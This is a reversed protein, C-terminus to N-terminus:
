RPHGGPLRGRDPARTGAQAQAIDDRALGGFRARGAGVFERRDAPGQRRRPMLALLGPRRAGTARARRGEVLAHVTGPAAPCRTQNLVEKTCVTDGIARLSNVHAEAETVIITNQRRYVIGPGHGPLLVQVVCSSVRPAAWAM